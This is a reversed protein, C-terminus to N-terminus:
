EAVKEIEARALAMLWAVLDLGLADAEAECAVVTQQLAAIRAHRNEM